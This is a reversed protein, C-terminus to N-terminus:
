SIFGFIFMLLLLVDQRRSKPVIFNEIRGTYRICLNTRRYSATEHLFRIGVARARSNTQQNRGAGWDALPEAWCRHQNNPTRCEFGKFVAASQVKDNGEWLGM